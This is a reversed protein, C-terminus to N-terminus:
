GSLVGITGINWQEMIGNNWNHAFRVLNKDKDTPALPNSGGVEQEWLLGEKLFSDGYRILIIVYVRDSSKFARQQMTHMTSM